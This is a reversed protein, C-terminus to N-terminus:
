APYNSFSAAPLCLVDGRELLECFCFPMTDEVYSESTTLFDDCAKGKGVIKWLTESCQALYSGHCKQAFM